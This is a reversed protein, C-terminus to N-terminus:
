TRFYIYQIDIISEFHGQKRFGDHMYIPSAQISIPTAKQGNIVFAIGGLYEIVDEIIKINDDLAAKTKEIVKGFFIKFNYIQKHKGRSIRENNELAIPIIKAQLSSGIDDESIERELVVESSFESSFQATLTTQLDDALTITISDAM